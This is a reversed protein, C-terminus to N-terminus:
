QIVINKKYSIHVVESCQQFSFFFFLMVQKGRGYKRKELWM